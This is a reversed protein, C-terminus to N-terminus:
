ENMEKDFKNLVEGIKGVLIILGIVLIILISGAIIIFTKM